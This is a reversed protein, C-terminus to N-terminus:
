VALRGFYGATYLVITLVALPPLNLGGIRAKHAFPLWGAAWVFVLTMLGSLIQTAPLIELGTLPRGLAAAPTTALQRAIVMYPIYALTYFLTVAEIPMRGLKM